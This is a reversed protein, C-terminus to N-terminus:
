REHQVPSPCFHRVAVQRIKPREQGVPKADPVLLEENGARDAVDKRLRSVPEIAQSAEALAMDVRGRLDSLLRAEQPSRVSARAIMFSPVSSM